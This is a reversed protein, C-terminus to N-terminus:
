YIIGFALRVTKSLPEFIVESITEKQKTKKKKKKKTKKKNLLDTLLNHCTGCIQIIEEESEVVLFISNVVKPPLFSSYSEESAPINSALNPGINTFYKCIFILQKWQIPFKM